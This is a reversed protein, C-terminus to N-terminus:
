VIFIRVAFRVMVSILVKATMQLGLGTHTIEALLATSLESLDPQHNVIFSFKDPFAPVPPHMVFLWIWPFTTHESEQYVSVHSFLLYLLIYIDRM